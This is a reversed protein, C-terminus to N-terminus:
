NPSHPCFTTFPFYGQLLIKSWQQGAGCLFNILIKSRILCHWWSIDMNSTTGRKSDHPSISPAPPHRRLAPCCLNPDQLAGLVKLKHIQVKEINPKELLLQSVNRFSLKNNWTLSLAFSPPTLIHCNMAVELVVRMWYSCLMFILKSVSDIFNACTTNDHLCCIEYRFIKPFQSNTNPSSLIQGIGSKSKRRWLTNLM